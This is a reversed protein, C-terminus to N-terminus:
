KTNTKVANWLMSLLGDHHIYVECTRCYKWYKKGGFYNSKINNEEFVDKVYTEACWHSVNSCFYSTTSLIVEISLLLHIIQVSRDFEKVNQLSVFTM